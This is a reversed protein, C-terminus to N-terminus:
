WLPMKPQRWWLASLEFWPIISLAYLVRIWQICMYCRNWISHCSMCKIRRTSIYMDM